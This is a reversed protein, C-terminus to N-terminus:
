HDTYMKFHGGLLYHRLKQLTYVMALGKREITTYNKETTPLKRNSFSIFHEISGEGPQVLVVGLAVFLADVHVHFEKKSDLFVLIPMTVMKNKLTDLSEQWNKTWQFKFDKKLLKEM